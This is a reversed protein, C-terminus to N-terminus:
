TTRPPTSVDMRVQDEYKGLSDRGSIQWSGDEEETINSHPNFIGDKLPNEMDIFWERGGV